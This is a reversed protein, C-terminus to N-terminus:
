FCHAPVTDLLHEAKLGELHVTDDTSRHNQAQDRNVQDFPELQAIQLACRDFKRCFILLQCFIRQATQDKAKAPRKGTGAGPWHEHIDAVPIESHDDYNEAREGSGIQVAQDSCPERM